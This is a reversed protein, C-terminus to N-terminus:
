GAGMLWPSLNSGGGASGNGPGYRTQQVVSKSVGAASVNVTVVTNVFPRSARVAAAVANSGATAASKAAAIAGTTARKAEDSKAKLAEIKGSLKGATKTDGSARLQEQITTLRAIKRETSQTSALIRNSARIQNRAFTAEEATKGLGTGGFKAASRARIGALLSKVSGAVDQRAIAAVTAAGSTVIAAETSQDFAAARQREIADSSRDAQRNAIESQLSAQMSQLSTLADGSVLTLLPNARIKAIGADVGGLARQLEPLTKGAISQDLGTKIEAAQRSSQDRIQLLTVGMAAIGGAIAGLPGAIMAGGAILGAAGGAGMAAGGVGGQQVGATLLAAGGIGIGLGVAKVLLGSLANTSAGRVAGGVGGVAGNVNVVAANVNMMGRFSSIVASILGGALNTVLGGTLKNVALGGIVLAQLEKPLSTFMRVATSIVQGTVQAAATLAPAAAKAANFLGKLADAGATINEESFLGAIKDGLESVQRIVAPDALFASLKDAVKGITPLLATALARQLDEISDTFKAVKGATTTGGALFSGGFEKNLEALIVRQAGLVDGSKQLAKIQKEQAATFQVGVRRLALLGRTPDNLAKGVQLISSSLDQGMAVSLDLAAALAPEFADKRINTFTLLVNAGQQIVTDDITANLAEYQEALTRISRSTQGAANGTSKLAATTQTTAKELEILSNLGVAVNAAVIGGTVLALKGINRIGAGIQQGARSMRVSTQGLKGELTNLGKTAARIQSNFNGKLSLTAVLNATEAFAM